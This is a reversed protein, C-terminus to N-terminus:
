LKKIVYEVIINADNKQIINKVLNNGGKVELIRCFYINSFSINHQYFPRLIGNNWTYM